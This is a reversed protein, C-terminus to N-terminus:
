FTSASIFKQFPSAAAQCRGSVKMHACSRNCLCCTHPLLKPTTAAYDQMMALPPLGNSTGAMEPPPQNSSPPMHSFILPPVPRPLTPLILDPRPASVVYQVGDMITPSLRAPLIPKATSVNPPWIAQVRQNILGRTKSRKLVSRYNGRIVVLGPRSPHVSRFLGSQQDLKPEKMHDPKSTDSKVKVGADKKPLSFPIAAESTQNTQTQSPKAHDHIPPTVSNLEPPNSSGLSSGSSGQDRSSGPFSCNVKTPEEPVPDQWVRSHSGMGTRSRSSWPEPYPRPQVATEPRKARQIRIQSLIFPLNAPTNQDEPYCTLYQLNDKEFSLPLGAASEPTSRPPSPETPKDPVRYDYGSSGMVAQQDHERDVPVNFRSEGSSYNSSITSSCYSDEASPARYNSSWDSSYSSSEIDSYGPDRPTLVSSVPYSVQLSSLGYPGQYFGQNEFTSPSYLPRSVANAIKLLNLLSIAMATPSPPTTQVYSASTNSTTANFTSARNSTAATNHMQILALQAKLHALQLSAAPPGILLPSVSLGGHLPGTLPGPAPAPM